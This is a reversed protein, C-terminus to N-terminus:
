AFNRIIQYHDSKSIIFKGKNIITLIKNKELDTKRIDVGTVAERDSVDSREVDGVLVRNNWWTIFFIRVRLREGWFVIAKPPIM